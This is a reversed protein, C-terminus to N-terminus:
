EGAEDMLLQFVADSLWLGADKIRQLRDSVSDILGRRKALVLIAGTGLTPIGFTTACRRAAMDDVVARYGNNNIGFSIVASEGSGLNWAAVPLTIEVRKRIIWHTKPLAIKAADAESGALIEQYVAEPM